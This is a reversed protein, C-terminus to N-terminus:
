LTAKFTWIENKHNIYEYANNPNLLESLMLNTHLWNKEWDEKYHYQGNKKVENILEDLILETLLHVHVIDSILSPQAKGSLFNLLLPLHKYRLETLKKIKSKIARM